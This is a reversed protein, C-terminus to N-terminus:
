FKWNSFSIIVIVLANSTMLTRKVTIGASMEENKGSIKSPNLNTLNNQVFKATFILLNNIIKTAQCSPISWLFITNWFYM